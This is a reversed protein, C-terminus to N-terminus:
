FCHAAPDSPVTPSQSGTLPWLISQSVDLLIPSSLAQSPHTTSPPTLPTLSSILGGPADM